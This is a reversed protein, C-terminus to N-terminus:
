EIEIESIKEVNKNSAVVLWSKKGTKLIYATVQPELMVRDLVQIFKGTGAVKLKPMLYRGVVYIIAVVVALSLIVQMVYGTTVVPSSQLVLTEPSAGLVTSLTM